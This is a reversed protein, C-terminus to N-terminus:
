GTKSLMTDALILCKPRFIDTLDGKSQTIKLFQRSFDYLIKVWADWKCKLIAYLVDNGHILETGYCSHM